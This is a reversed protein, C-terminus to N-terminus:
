STKTWIFGVVMALPWLLVSTAKVILLAVDGRAEAAIAEHQWARVAEEAAEALRMNWADIFMAKALAFLQRTPQISKLIEAFGSDIEDRPISRRNSECGRTDCLYYPYHKSRGKSWCSTMPQAGM